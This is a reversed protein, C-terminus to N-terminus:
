TATGSIQVDDVNSFSDRVDTSTTLNVNELQKELPSKLMKGNTM